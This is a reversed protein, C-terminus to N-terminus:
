LTCLALPRTAPRTDCGALRAPSVARISGSDSTVLCRGRSSFTSAHSNVADQPSNDRFELDETSLLETVHATPLGTSHWSGAQTHLSFTTARARPMECSYARAARRM